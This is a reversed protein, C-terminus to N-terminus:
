RDNGHSIRRLPIKLIEPTMIELGCLERTLEEQWGFPGWFLSIRERYVSRVAVKPIKSRM